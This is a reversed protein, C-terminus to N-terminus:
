GTFSGRRALGAQELLPGLAIGGAWVWGVHRSFTRAGTLEVLVRVGPTAFLAEVFSKAELGRDKLTGTIEHCSYDALRIEIGVAGAWSKTKMVNLLCVYTDGDVVHMVRAECRTVAEIM